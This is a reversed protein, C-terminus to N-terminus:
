AIALFESQLHRAMGIKNKHGIGLGHPPSTVIKHRTVTGGTEKVKEELHMMLDLFSGTNQSAFNLGLSGRREDVKKDALKGRKSRVVYDTVVFHKGLRLLGAVVERHNQRQQRSMREFMNRRAKMLRQWQKSGKTIASNKMRKEVSEILPIWHKDPRWLDVVEEYTGKLVGISSAGLALYVIDSSVHPLVVPQPAEYVISLWYRGPKALKHEDRSLTFKKVKGHSLKELCYAPIQFSLTGKGFLNPAFTVHDGKIGFGARGLVVQFFGVERARPPRADRDGRKVLQFFSLFSSNLRDLTEEQWDRPAFLFEADGKRRATLKNIQDFVTPLKVENEKGIEKAVKWADYASVREALAENWVTRLNESARHLLTREAETPRLEFRVARYMISREIGKAM